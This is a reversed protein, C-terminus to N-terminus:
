DKVDLRECRIEGGFRWMSCSGEPWLGEWKLNSAPIVYAGAASKDEIPDNANLVLVANSAIFKTDAWNVLM